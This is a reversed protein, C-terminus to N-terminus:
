IKQTKIHIKEYIYIYIYIFPLVKTYIKKFYIKKIIHYNCGSISPIQVKYKKRLFVLFHWYALSSLEQCHVVGLSVIILNQRMISLSKLMIGSFFQELM